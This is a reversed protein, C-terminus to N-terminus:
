KRCQRGIEDSGDDCDSYGNCWDVPLVEVCGDYQTWWDFIELLFGRSTTSSDSSFTMRLTDSSINLESDIINGSNLDGSYAGFPM